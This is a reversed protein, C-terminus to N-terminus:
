DIMSVNTSIGANEELVTMISGPNNTYQFYLGIAEQDNKACVALPDSYIMQGTSTSDVACVLYIRLKKLQYISGEELIGTIKDDSFQRVVGMMMVLMDQNPHYYFRIM